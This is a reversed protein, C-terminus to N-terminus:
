IKREFSKKLKIRALRWQLKYAADFRIVAHQPLEETPDEYIRFLRVNPDDHSTIDRTRRVSAFTVGQGARNGKMAQDASRSLLVEDSLDGSRILSEGDRQGPTNEIVGSAPPFMYKTQFAADTMGGDKWTNEDLLKAVNEHDNVPGAPCDGAARDDRDM